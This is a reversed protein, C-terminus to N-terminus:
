RALGRQLSGAVARPNPMGAHSPSMARRPADPANTVVARPQSTIGARLLSRASLWLVTALPLELFLASALSLAWGSTGWSLVVDFWADCIFLTGSILAAPVALQRSRYLAWLTVLVSGLEGVDFGIWVLRWERTSASSPLSVGLVVIWGLMGVAVAALLCALANIRGPGTSARAIRRTPRDLATSPRSRDRQAADSSRALADRDDLAPCQSRPSRM